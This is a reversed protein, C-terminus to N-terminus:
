ARIAEAPALPLCIRITAGPSTEDKSASHGSSIADSGSQAVSITGLHAEVIRLAISMGLGTGKHKTTFFPEFVRARQEPSMGPGNDRVEIELRAAADGGTANSSQDGSSQGGVERVAITIEVPDSCAGLSNEFLNRFVQVFRFHDLRCQADDTEIHEILRCQRDRRQPSLMEWAERWCSSIPVRQLQLNLPGAYGRVEEFLRQLDDQAKEIRRLLDMAADNGEVELELMEVCALTRQLANRSEHVMGTMMQGIAALREAQLAREESRKKDTIDRIIGTFLRREGLWLESVALDVPLESGDKRKAVVERGIGIIRAIGTRLYESLYGDHEDAMPSPMLMSVNRGILEHSAYGFIRECAPNISEIIGKEDITVIADVATNVIAKLRADGYGDHSGHSVLENETSRASTSRHLPSNPSVDSVSADAGSRDNM